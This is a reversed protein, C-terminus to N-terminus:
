RIIKGSWLDELFVRWPLIEIRATVSRPQPDCSVLIRRRSRYEEGFATLGKLHQPQASSTGKVEIVVEHDGLIFDVELQSATRWYSISYHLGSYSAYASLEMFLFHEFARGFLESGTEVRGRKTLIGVVGVDFFYFRPALIVRRKPRKQYAPIFKGLLTDELIQYYSKVTPASVGCERAINTFQIMEGNGMAAIELFRSFGPINRTAAEAAIEEQLYDGVYAELRTRAMNSGYHPPLLGDNLAKELSFDPIEPFVLPFLEYRIARGGLLNAHGRRLKRASSGCLIFSLKANEILWHIEDLLDPVKQVEDIVVPRDKTDARRALALCEERLLSPQHMLRRYEDSLLLDYRKST